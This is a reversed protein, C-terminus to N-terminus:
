SLVNIGRACGMASYRARRASSGACRTDLGLGAGGAVWGSRKEVTCFRLNLLSFGATTGLKLGGAAGAAVPALASKKPGVELGIAAFVFRARGLPTISVVEGLDVRAALLMMPV